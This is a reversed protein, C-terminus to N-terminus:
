SRWPTPRSVTVSRRLREAVALHTSARVPSGIGAASHAAPAAAAARCRVCSAAGCRSAPPTASADTAPAARRRTGSGRARSLQLLRRLRLLGHREPQRDHLGAERHHRRLRHLRRGPVPREDPRHRGQRRRLGERRRRRALARRLLAPLAPRLLRRAPRRRAAGPRRPRGAGAPDKVKAAAADSLIIGDSVTTTEDSVSM